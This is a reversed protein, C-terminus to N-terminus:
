NWLKKKVFMLASFTKEDEMSRMILIPLQLIFHIMKQM